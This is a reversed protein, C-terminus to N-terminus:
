FKVSFIKKWIFMNQCDKIYQIKLKSIMRVLQVTIIEFGFSAQYKQEYTRGGGRDGWVWYFNM